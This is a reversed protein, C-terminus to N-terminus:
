TQSTNFFIIEAKSIRRNRRLGSLQRRLEELLPREHSEPEQLNEILDLIAVELSEVPTGSPIILLNRAPAIEVMQLWPIERLSRCQGVVIVSQGRAVEVLDVLDHDKDGRKGVASQTVKTIARARDGDVSELQRLVREPLTVTVAKRKEDFKPPRGRRRHISTANM